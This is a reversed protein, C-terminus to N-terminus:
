SKGGAIAKKDAASWVNTVWPRGAPAASCPAGSWKNVADIACNLTTAANKFEGSDEKLCHKVGIVKANQETLQVGAPLAKNLFEVADIACNLTTAANKFEGSDEKLCHEVGM